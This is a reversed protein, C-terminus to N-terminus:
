LVTDCDLKIDVRSLKSYLRSIYSPNGIRPYRMIIGFFHKVLCYLVCFYYSFETSFKIFTKRNSFIRFDTDFYDEYFSNWNKPLIPSMKISYFKEGSIRFFINRPKKDWHPLIPFEVIYMYLRWGFLIVLM